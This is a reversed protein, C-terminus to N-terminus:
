RRGDRISLRAAECGNGIRVVERPSGDTDAGDSFRGRCVGDAYLLEFVEVSLMFVMVLVEGLVDLTDVGCVETDLVGDRMLRLIRKASWGSTMSEVGSDLFGELSVIDEM